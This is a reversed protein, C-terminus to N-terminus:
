WFMLKMCFVSGGAKLFESTELEVPAFGADRLRRTTTDCGRQILVHEEDPCHANCAFLERAEDEPAEIVREFLDHILALGDDDFAGPHILVSREDLVSFCTDLHYFDDDSLTLLVVPVDLAESIYEYVAPATRVGHGGWLLHRRPHWLADGMGEFAGDVDDPLRLVEYGRRRFFRAYHPVEDRREAAHMRSIVVGKEGDKYFPLTQNACFVMDPLGEAGPLEEVPLSLSRYAERLARWQKGAEGANVSDENGAMHPNIAYQVDFHEPTTLLVRGPRPLSACDSLDFDLDAASRYLM